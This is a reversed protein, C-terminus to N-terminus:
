YVKLRLTNLIIRKFRFCTHIEESNTRHFMLKRVLLSIKGWTDIIVLSKGIGLVTSVKKRLMSLSTTVDNKTTVRITHDTVFNSPINLDFSITIGKVKM